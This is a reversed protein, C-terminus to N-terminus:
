RDAGSHDEGGKLAPLNSEPCSCDKVVTIRSLPDDEPESYCDGFSPATLVAVSDGIIPLDEIKTGILTLPRCGRQIAVSVADAIQIFEQGSGTRSIRLANELCAELHSRLANAQLPTRHRAEDILNLACFVHLFPRIQTRRAAGGCLFIGHCQFRIFLSEEANNAHAALLIFIFFINQIPVKIFFNITTTARATVAYVICANERRPGHAAHCFM